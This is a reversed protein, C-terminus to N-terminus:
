QTFNSLDAPSVLGILEGKMKKIDYNIEAIAGTQFIPTQGEFTLEGVLYSVLPMHSVILVSSYKEAGVVGDIYDHVDIASGSPTVFAVTEPKVSIDASQCFTAATQQARVYPSVLVLDVDHKNQRFWQAMASVEEIGHATLARQADDKVFGEAQGHRMIYVQM